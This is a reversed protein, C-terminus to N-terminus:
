PEIDTTTDTPPEQVPSPRRLVLMTSEDDERKNLELSYPNYIIEGRRFRKWGGRCEYFSGSKVELLRSKDHLLALVRKEHDTEPTLVVQELGDEIYFATIM